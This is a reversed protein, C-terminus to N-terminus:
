RLEIVYLLISLFYIILFITFTFTIAKYFIFIKQQYRVDKNCIIVCLNTESLKQMPTRCIPCKKKTIIWKTFCDIHIYGNCKCSKVYNIINDFEVLTSHSEIEYCIFCEKENIFLNIDRNTSYDIDNKEDYHEFVRYM